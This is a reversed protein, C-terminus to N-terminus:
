KGNKSSVSGRNLDLNISGIEEHIEICNFICDAFNSKVTSLVIKFKSLKRMKCPYDGFSQAVSLEIDCTYYPHIKM